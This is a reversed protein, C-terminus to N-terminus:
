LRQVMVGDGLMNALSAIYKGYAIPETFPETFTKSVLLAFNTNETNRDRFSHGNVTLVGRNNEVVVEGHPCVCFTRVLDDFMRSYYRIKPEYVRDTLHELIVAPLEVRVGIDVPNNALSLGIKKVQQTFWESGERGPACIVCQGKYDGATTHVGQVRGDAVLIETAEVGTLIDVRSELHDFMAQLIAPCKDTGIHRISAPVMQLSSAAAARVLDKIESQSEHYLGGQAGFRVYVEDVYGILQRLYGPDLYDNLFGGFESTLTLKGDSFAGAGGWGSLVRCPSCRICANGTHMPCKRKDLTGGKDLVLVSCDSKDALELAAFIGAPGAGVIIVDYHKM